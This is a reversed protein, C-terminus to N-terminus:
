FPRVYRERGTAIIRSASTMGEASIIVPVRDGRGLPAYVGSVRGYRNDMSNTEMAFREGPKTSVMVIEGAPITGSYALQAGDVGFIPNTLPGILTWTLWIDGDGNNAMFLGNSRSVPAIYLPWGKGSTGYFPTATGNIQEYQFAVSQETGEWMSSVSTLLWAEGPNDKLGAGPDYEYETGPTDRLRAKLERVVGDPRTVRLTGAYFPSNAKSWWEDAIRYYDMGTLTDAVLVKLSPEAREIQSSAWQTGGRIYTHEIKPITFDSQGVDLLVGETGDTLNWVKGRPDFWEVKLTDPM